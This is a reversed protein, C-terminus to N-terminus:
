NHNMQHVDQDPYQAAMANLYWVQLLIRDCNKKKKQQTEEKSLRCVDEKMKGCKTVNFYFRAQPKKKRKDAEM